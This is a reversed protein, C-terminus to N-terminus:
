PQPHHQTATINALEGNVPRLTYPKHSNGNPPKQKQFIYSYSYMDHVLLFNKM